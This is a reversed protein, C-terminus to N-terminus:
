ERVPEGKKGELLQPVRAAEPDFGVRKTFSAVNTSFPFGWWEDFGQDTPYRGPSDGLHWKGFIATDYGAESLMEALTIEWPAL